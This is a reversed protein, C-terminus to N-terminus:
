TLSRTTAPLDPSWVIGRRTRGQPNVSRLWLDVPTLGTLGSDLFERGDLATITMGERTISQWRVPLACSPNGTAGLALEVGLLIVAQVGGAPPPRGHEYTVTTTDGCVAWGLGDTRGLWGPRTIVWDTFPDGDITVETVTTVDDHPLGVAM